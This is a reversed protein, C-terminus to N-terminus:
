INKRNKETKKRKQKAANEHLIYRLDPIDRSDRQKEQLSVVTVCVMCRGFWRRSSANLSKRVMLIKEINQEILLEWGMGQQQSKHRKEYM